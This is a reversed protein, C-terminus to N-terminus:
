VECPIICPLFFVYMVFFMIIDVDHLIEYKWSEAFSLFNLLM